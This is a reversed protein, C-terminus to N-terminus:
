SMVVAKKWDPRPCKRGEGGRDVLANQLEDWAAAAVFGSVVVEEEVSMAPTGFTRKCLVILNSKRVAKLFAMEAIFLASYRIREFLKAGQIARATLRDNRFM